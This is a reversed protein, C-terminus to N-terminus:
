TLRPLNPNTIVAQRTNITIPKNTTRYKQGSRAPVPVLYRRACRAVPGPRITYTTARYSASPAPNSGAHAQARRNGLGYVRRSWRKGMDVM